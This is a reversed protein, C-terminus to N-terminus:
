AAAPGGGCCSSGPSVEFSCRWEEFRLRDLSLTLRGCATSAKRIQRCSESACRVVCQLLVVIFKLFVTARDAITPANLKLARPSPTPRPVADASWPFPPCGHTGCFQWPSGVTALKPVLPSRILPPRILTAPVLPWPILAADVVGTPVMLGEVPLTLTNLRVEVVVATGPSEPEQAEPDRQSRLPHVNARGHQRRALSLHPRYRYAAPGVTAVACPDVKSQTPRPPASAPRSTSRGDTPALPNQNHLRPSEFGQSRGQLPLARGVSSLGRIQDPRRTPRQM